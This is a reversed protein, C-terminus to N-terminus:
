AAVEARTLKANPEEMFSCCLHSRWLLAQMPHLLFVSGQSAEDKIKCSRVWALMIKYMCAVLIDYTLLSCSSDLMMSGTLHM